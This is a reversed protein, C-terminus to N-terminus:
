AEMDQVDLMAQYNGSDWDDHDASGEAYPNKEDPVNHQDDRTGNMYVIFGRAWPKLSEFEEKSLIHMM